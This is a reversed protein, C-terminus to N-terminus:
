IAHCRLVNKERGAFFVGPLVEIESFLEDTHVALLPSAVPGGFYLRSCGSWRPKAVPQQSIGEHRDRPCNVIVGFAGRDSHTVALIVAEFFNPDLQHSAALLFHGQLSKM